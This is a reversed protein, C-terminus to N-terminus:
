SNYYNTLAKEGFYAISEEYDSHAFNYTVEVFTAKDGSYVAYTRDWGAWYYTSGFIRATKTRSNDITFYTLTGNCQAIYGSILDYANTVINKVKTLNLGFVLSVISALTDNIYYYVINDRTVDGQVSEYVYVTLSGPYTGLLNSTVPTEWGPAWDEAFELADEESLITSRPQPRSSFDIVEDPELELLVDVISAIEADSDESVVSKTVISYGDSNDISYSGTHAVGPNDRYCISYSIEGDNYIIYAIRYTSTEELYMTGHELILTDRLVTETLPKSGVQDSTSIDSVALASTSFSAIITLILALSLLRNLKRKM